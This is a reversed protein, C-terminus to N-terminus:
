KVTIRGDGYIDAYTDPIVGKLEDAFYMEFAELAEIYEDLHIEKGALATHGDGEQLLVYDISGVTYTKDPEIPRGSVMIDKVRRKDGKIGKFLKNKDLEIDAEVSTDITYTLGSVQLFGGFEEPEYAAGFELADAINQGTVEVKVVRNAFPNVDCLEGYTIDGKKIGARVSGANAVGIDAGTVYRYADAAFDGMNTEANRVIRNGDEDEISLDYDSKGIVRELVDEVAEEEKKILATIEADKKEYDRVLETKMNGARDITLKGLTELKTGTQTLIVDKGEANKVKEMEVESHSHGDLFVDIGTTNKIVDTSMYPASEGNIGLHGLVIVYDAGNDRAEDAYGQINEYFAAEGEEDGFSYLKEKKDNEFYAPVSSTYTEPTCIGLFAIRKGGAEIFKYPEFVNKGSTLDTFNCCVYPFDAKGTLESFRDMGFDFEHNGITVVDYGVANMINIISEGETLSGMTGGSIADGCDALIVANGEDIMEKKYAALGDYGIGEEAGCHVDNTYLIVIDGTKLGDEQESLRQTVADAAASVPDDSTLVDGVTGATDEVSNVFAEDPMDIITENLGTEEDKVSITCGTLMLALMATSLVISIIKKMQIEGKIM